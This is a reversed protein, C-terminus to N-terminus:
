GTREAFQVLGLADDPHGHREGNVVTVAPRELEGPLVTLGLFVALAEPAGRPHGGPFIRRRDAELQAEGQRDEQRRSSNIEAQPHHVRKAAQAVAVAERLGVRFRDGVRFRGGARPRADPGHAELESGPEVHASGCARQSGSHARRHWSICGDIVYEGRKWSTCLGGPKKHAEFIEVEYGNMLAYCGASLGSMGAGVIVVRKTM